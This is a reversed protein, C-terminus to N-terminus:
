MIIHDTIVTNHTNNPATVSKLRNKHSVYLFIIFTCYRYNLSKIIEINSSIQLIALATDIGKHKFKLCNLGYLYFVLLLMVFQHIKYKVIRIIFKFQIIKIQQILSQM